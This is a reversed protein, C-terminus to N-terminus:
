KNTEQYSSEWNCRKWGLLKVFFTCHVTLSWFSVVGVLLAIVAIYYYKHNNLAICTNFMSSHHDMRNYFIICFFFSLFFFFHVIQSRPSLHACIYFACWWCNGFSLCFALFVSGICVHAVNTVTLLGTLNRSSNIIKQILLLGKTIVNELIVFFFICYCVLCASCFGEPIKFGGLGVQNDNLAEWIEKLGFLYIFVCVYIIIIIIVKAKVCQNHASILM